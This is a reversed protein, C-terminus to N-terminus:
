RAIGLLDFGAVFIELVQGIHQTEGSFRVCSRPCLRDQIEFGLDGLRVPGARLAAVRKFGVVPHREGLHALERGPEIEGREDASRSRPDIVHDDGLWAREFPSGRRNACHRKRHKAILQQDSRQVSVRRVQRM